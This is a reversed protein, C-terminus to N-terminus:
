ICVLWGPLCFFLFLFFCWVGWGWLVAVQAFGVWWSVLAWCYPPAGAFGRQALCCALCRNESMHHRLYLLCVRRWVGHGGVSRRKGPWTLPVRMANESIVQTEPQSHKSGANAQQGVARNSQYTSSSSSSSRSRLAPARAGQGLRAGTAVAAAGEPRGGM